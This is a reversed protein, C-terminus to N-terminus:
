KPLRALELYTDFWRLQVMEPWSDDFAPLAPMPMPVPMPVPMAVIPSPRTVVEGRAVKLEQRKGKRGRGKGAVGWEGKLAQWINSNMSWKKFFLLLRMSHYDKIIAERNEEFFARKSGKRETALVQRGSESPGEEPAPSPRPMNISATEPMRTELAPREERMFKGGKAHKKNLIEAQNIREQSYSDAFFRVAKCDCVGRSIGQLYSSMKWHHGGGNIPCEDLTRVPEKTIM